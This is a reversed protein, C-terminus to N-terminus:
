GATTLILRLQGMVAPFVVLPLDWDAWDEQWFSDTVLWLRGNLSQQDM